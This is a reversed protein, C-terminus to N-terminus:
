RATVTMTARGNGRSSQYDIQAEWTGAMEINVHAHYKGPTSTTTLIAQDNMEAMSGMAPMHFNLSAASVVVPNGSADTFSLTLDNEGSKLEGTASSLTVTLDGVKASKIVKGNSGRDGCAVAMFVVIVVEFFAIITKVRMPSGEKFNLKLKAV